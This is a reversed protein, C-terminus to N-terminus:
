PNLWWSFSDVVEGAQLMSVDLRYVYGSEPALGDAPDLGTPVSLNAVSYVSLSVVQKWDDFGEAPSADSLIPPSFSSGVLCDLALVEAGSNAGPTGAPTRPLGDALTFIESALFAAPSSAKDYAAKTRATASMSWTAAVFATGLVVATMLVEFLTFGRVGRPAARHQKM